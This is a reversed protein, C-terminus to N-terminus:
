SLSNTRDRYAKPTTGMFRRFQRIFHSQDCFGCQCGVDFLSMRSSELLRRALEIRQSLIYQYPSVGVSRKFLKCFYTTSLGVVEALAQIKLENELNSHIYSLIQIIKAHEIENESYSRKFRASAYKLMLHTALFQISAKRYLKAVPAADDLYPILGQAVTTIVDDQIAYQGQLHWEPTLLVEQVRDRLLNAELLIIMLQCPESLALGHRQHAPIICLQQPQLFESRENQEIQRRFIHTGPGLSLLIKIRSEQVVPWHIPAAPSYYISFGEFQHFTSRDTLSSSTM